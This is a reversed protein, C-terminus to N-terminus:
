FYCSEMELRKDVEKNARNGNEVEKDSRNGNETEFMAIVHKITNGKVLWFIDSIFIFYICIITSWFKYVFGDNLVRIINIPKSGKFDSVVIERTNVHLSESKDM